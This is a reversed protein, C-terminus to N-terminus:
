CVVFRWAQQTEKNYKVVIDGKREIRHKKTHTNLSGNTPLYPVFRCAGTSVWVSVARSQFTSVSKPVICFKLLM